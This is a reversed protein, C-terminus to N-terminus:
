DITGETVEAITVVSLAAGTTVNVAVIVAPLVVLDEPIEIGSLMDDASIKPM